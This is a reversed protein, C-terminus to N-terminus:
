AAIGLVERPVDLISSMKVLFSEPALVRESLITRLFGKETDTLPLQDVSLGLRDLHFDIAAFSKPEDIPYHRDEYEEVALPIADLEISEPTNPEAGV